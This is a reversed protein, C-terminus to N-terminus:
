NYKHLKFILLLQVTPLWHYVIINQELGMTYGFSIATARGLFINTTAMAILPQFIKPLLKLEPVLGLAYILIMGTEIKLILSQPSKLPSNWM